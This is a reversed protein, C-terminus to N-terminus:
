PALRSLERAVNERAIAEWAHGTDTRYIRDPAVLQELIASRGTAFDPGPVHAYEQRVQACYQDFRASPASLIWLDADHFADVLAGDAAAAQHDATMLILAEVRDVRPSDAGLAHLHDRAIAASRHENSGAAARPDYAVDHYWGALNAVPQDAGGLEGGASISELADLVEALHDLSHYRRHPESWAAIVREFEADVLSRDAHPAIDALDRSWRTHLRETLSTM